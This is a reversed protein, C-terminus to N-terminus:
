IGGELGDTLRRKTQLADLREAAFKEARARLRELAEEVVPRLLALESDIQDARKSAWDKIQEADVDAAFDQKMEILTKASDFRGPGVLKGPIIPHQGGTRVPMELFQWNGSFPIRCTVHARGSQVSMPFTTKSRDLAPFQVNVQPDIIATPSALEAESALNLLRELTTWRSEIFKALEVGHFLEGTVM